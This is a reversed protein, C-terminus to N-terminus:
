LHMKRHNIVKCHNLVSLHMLYGGLDKASEIAEEVLEQYAPMNSAAYILSPNTTADTPKYKGIASLFCFYNDTIMFYIHADDFVPFVSIKLM